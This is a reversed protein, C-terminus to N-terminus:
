VVYHPFMGELFAQQSLFSSIGSTSTHNLNPSTIQNVPQIPPAAQIYNNQEPLAMQLCEEVIDHSKKNFWRM